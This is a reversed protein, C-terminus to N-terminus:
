WVYPILRKRYKAFESYGDLTHLTKEEILIRLVISPLLLVLFFLVSYINCYFICIGCFAVIMGTYSPHRLYRYPGYDIIKHHDITRVIHSYYKGLTQIAWFRFSIGCFLLAVGLIHFVSLKVWFSDIWLASLVTMSQSLGYLERTGYDLNQRNKEKDRMSIGLEYLLWIIMIAVVLIDPNFAFSVLLRETRIIRRVGSIVIGILLISPLVISLIRSMKKEM